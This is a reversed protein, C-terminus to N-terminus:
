KINPLSKSQIRINMKYLVNDLKLLLKAGESREGFVGNGLKITGKWECGVGDLKVNLIVNTFLKQKHLKYTTTISVMNQFHYV